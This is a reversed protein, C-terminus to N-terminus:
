VVVSQRLAVLILGSPRPHDSRFESPPVEGIVAALLTWCSGRVPSCTTFM